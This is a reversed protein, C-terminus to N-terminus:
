EAVAELGLNEDEGLNFEVFILIADYRGVRTAMTVPKGSSSRRSRDHTDTALPVHFHLVTFTLEPQSITAQSLSSPQAFM